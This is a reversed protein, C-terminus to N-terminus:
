GLPATRAVPSRRRQCLPCYFTSRGAQVLRRVTAAAARADRLARGRPRLGPLPAPFLRALRRDAVYDRLTSGGAEVAESSCRASRRRWAIPASADAQRRRTALSGAPAERIVARGPVAGRLCLHQRARRDPAPRAAGGQAAGRKGRSCAPSRARRRARQRAARARPRAFHPSTDLEARPVLDMFGFRRADNYTIARATRSTSSSTTTPARAAPRLTSSAPRRAHARGAHRPLAREHRSAHGAGRRVLPRRPPIEGAPRAGVVEQGTLRAVFREPFPFRLDPRRQEVREIRAGVMAPELGRRVTEVEPLEPM